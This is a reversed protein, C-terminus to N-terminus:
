LLMLIQSLFAEIWLHVPICIIYKQDSKAKACLEWKLGTPFGAGGRGRLGAKKVEDVLQAPAMQTLANHLGFYGDRGIYEEISEAAIMGKNHLVRTNQKAFFPIDKYHAIPEDTVPHHFVLSEVPKGNKFHQEVIVAADEPTIKTYFYGGPYVVIIPGAACFGNCGTEFLTM